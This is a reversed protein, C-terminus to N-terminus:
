IWGKPIIFFSLYEGDKQSGLDTNVGFAHEAVTIDIHHGEYDWEEYIQSGEFTADIDDFMQVNLWNDIYGHIKHKSCYLQYDEHAVFIYNNVKKSNIYKMYFDYIEEKHNGWCKNDKLLHNLKEYIHNKINKDIKLKEIIYEKLNNM